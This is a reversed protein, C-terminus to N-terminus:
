AKTIEVFAYSSNLMEVLAKKSTPACNIANWSLKPNVLDFRGGKAPVILYQDFRTDNANDKAIVNYTTM